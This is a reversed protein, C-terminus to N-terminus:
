DIKGLLDPNAVYAALSEAFGSLGPFLSARNINMRHLHRLIDRRLNVDGSITIKWIHDSAKLDNKCVAELNDEFPKSIDGPAIFLGQQVILRENLREPNLTFVFSHPTPHCFIHKFSKGSKYPPDERGYKESGFPFMPVAKKRLWDMDIAWVAYHKTATEVAFFLAVFFSYTWDLLRTPSGFHQMLALWEITDDDKPPSELYRHAQRKFQRIMKPELEIEILENLNRGFRKAAVRELTTKLEYDADSLGRFVWQVKPKAFEEKYFRLLETWSESFRGNFNKFDM